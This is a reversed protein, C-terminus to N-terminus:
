VKLKQATGSQVVGEMINTMQFASMPDIIQKRDDVLGAGGSRDVREGRLRAIASTM